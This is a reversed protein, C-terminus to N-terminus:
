IKKLLFNCNALIISRLYDLASFAESLEKEKEKRLEEEEGEGDKEVFVALKAIENLREDVSNNLKEIQSIIEQNLSNDKWYKDFIEIKKKLDAILESYYKQFGKEISELNSNHTELKSISEKLSKEIEPKTIENNENM